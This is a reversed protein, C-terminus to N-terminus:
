LSDLYVYKFRTAYVTDTKFVYVTDNIMVSDDMLRCIRNSMEYREKGM